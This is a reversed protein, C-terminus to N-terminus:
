SVAAGIMPDWSGSGPQLEADFREGTRDLADVAGTPLKLGFLLAVDIAMAAASRLRYQGLVTLDGIGEARGRDDVADPAGERIGHRNLFPAHFGVGLNDTVGYAEGVFVSFQYDISHLAHGEAAFRELDADSVRDFVLYDTRLGIAWHGKPLTTAPLTNIPGATASGFGVSPHHAWATRGDVLAAVSFVGVLTATRLDITTTPCRGVVM